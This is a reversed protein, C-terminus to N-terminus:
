DALRRGRGQFARFRADSPNALNAAQVPVRGIGHQLCFRNLWRPTRIVIRGSAAPYVDTLFWYVHGMLIGLIDPWVNQGMLLDLAVFAFPLHRGQLQVIGFLSVPANAFQKSWLYIFMFVLAPGHFPSMFVPPLFRSLLWSLLDFGLGAICGVGVMTIGDATNHSFRASEYAGGYKVLWVLQFLWHLSPRGIFTFTTVLRWVEPLLKFTLSWNHFMQKLPLIGMYASLGTVLYVTLLGRTLPPLAWYWDAANRDGVGRVDGQARPPM